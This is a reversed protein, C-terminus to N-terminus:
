GKIGKLAIEGIKRELKVSSLRQANKEGRIVSFKFLCDYVANEEVQEYQIPSSVDITVDSYTTGSVCDFGTVYRFPTSKGTKEDTFSTERKSLVCIKDFQAILAM